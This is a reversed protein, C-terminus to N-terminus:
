RASDKELEGFWEGAGRMMWSPTGLGELCQAADEAEHKRREAHLRSGTVLREVLQASDGALENEIQLRLWDECGASKAGELAELVVGALGKMFVSRLLKREAAAGAGGDVSEIQAGTGALARRFADGGDGSIMLPTGAGARPVPALVAVDLYSAGADTVLEAMHRTDGPGSTNLDAVVMSPRLHPLLDTVVREANAAGVLSLVVEAGEVCEGVTAAIRVGVLEPQAVPDYGSVERGAAALGEAYLAGAEGLGIVAIRM